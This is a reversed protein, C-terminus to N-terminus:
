DHQLPIKITFASGKGAESEVKITGKHRELVSKVYNLGLGYGKVNHMDGSPVRFFKDFVRNQYQKPIGIGNDEIRIIALDNEARLEVRIEPREGSYKIANDLLNYIVNTFHVKDASVLLPQPPMRNSFLIHKSEFQLKMNQVVQVTLEVLNISEFNMLMENREFASTKLVKDVMMSLRSLENGAISLYERTKVKDDIVKYNQIAEVAVSITSIPTKLEHSMNSIFDNKLANLKSESFLSRLLFVFTFVSILILIASSLVIMGMKGLITARENPFAVQVYLQNMGTAVMGSKFPIAAFLVTDKLTCAIICHKRVDLTALEFPLHLGSSALAESIENKLKFIDMRSGGFLTKLLKRLSDPSVNVGTSNNKGLDTRLSDKLSSDNFSVQIQLPEGPKSSSSDSLVNLMKDIVRLGALGNKENTSDGPSYNALNFTQKLGSQINKLSWANLTNNVSETLQKQGLEYSQRLWYVQSAIIGALALFVLVILLYKRNMM